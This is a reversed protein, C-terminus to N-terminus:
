VGLKAMYEQLNALSNKDIRDFEMGVKILGGELYNIQRIVAGVIAKKKTPLLTEFFVSGDQSFLGALRNDRFVIGIGGQSIDSVLFRTPIPSFINNKTCLQDVLISVRKVVELLGESLPQPSNVQVYGYPILKRYLVPVAIESIFGQGRQLFPDKRYINEVYFNFAEAEEEAPDSNLDPIYLPKLERMFYDMRIDNSNLDKFHIRNHPFRKELEFRATELITEIKKHNISISNSIVTDSVLGQIYIIDKEGGGSSGLLIRDDKRAESVVQIKLPAFTYTDQNVEFVKLAAYINTNGHRTFIIIDGSINKVAPIRLSLHEADCGLYQVKYNGNKTRIFIDNGAFYKNFIQPFKDRDTITKIIDAM